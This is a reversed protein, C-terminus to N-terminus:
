KNKRDGLCYGILFHVEWVSGVGFGGEVGWDLSFSFFFLPSIYAFFLNFFFYFCWVM